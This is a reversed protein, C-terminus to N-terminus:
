QLMWLFGSLLMSPLGIHSSWLPVSMTSFVLASVRLGEVTSLLLGLLLALMMLMARVACKIIAVRAAVCADDANCAGHVGGIGIGGIAAATAFVVDGVDIVVVAAVIVLVRKVRSADVDALAVKHVIWATVVEIGLVARHAVVAIVISAAGAASDHGAGSVDVVAIVAIWVLEDGCYKVGVRDQGDVEPLICM